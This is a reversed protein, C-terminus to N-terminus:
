NKLIEEWVEMTESLQLDEEQIVPRQHMACGTLMLLLFVFVGFIWKMETVM